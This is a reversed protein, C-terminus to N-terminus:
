KPSKAVVPPILKCCSDLYNQQLIEMLDKSIRKASERSVNFVVISHIDSHIEM